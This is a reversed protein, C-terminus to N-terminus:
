KVVSEPMPTELFKFIREAEAKPFLSLDEYRVVLMQRPREEAMREAAALDASMRQCLEERDACQARECWDMRSRSLWTPRPDRFLALIQLHKKNSFKILSYQELTPSSSDTWQKVM